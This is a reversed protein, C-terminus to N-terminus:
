PTSYLAQAEPAPGRREGLGEVRIVLTTRALALTLVDGVALLKAPDLVRAGNIRVHGDRVLAAAASRSKQLRAFFLWQDLRRRDERPM